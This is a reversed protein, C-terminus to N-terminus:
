AGSFFFPQAGVLAPTLVNVLSMSLKEQPSAASVASDDPHKSDTQRSFYGRSAEFRIAVVNNVLFMRFADGEPNPNHTTQLEVLAGEFTSELAQVSKRIAVTDDESMDKTYRSSGKVTKTLEVSKMLTHCCRHFYPRGYDASHEFEQLLSTRASPPIWLGHYPNEIIKMAEEVAGYFIRYPQEDMVHGPHADILKSIMNGALEIFKKRKKSNGAAYVKDLRACHESAHRSYNSTVHPSRLYLTYFTTPLARLTGFSNLQQVDGFFATGVCIRGQAGSRFPSEAMGGLPSDAFNVM